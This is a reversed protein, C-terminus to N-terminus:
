RQCFHLEGLHQENGGQMGLGTFEQIVPMTIAQFM